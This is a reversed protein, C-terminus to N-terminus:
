LKAFFADVSRVVHSKSKVYEWVLRVCNVAFAFAVIWFAIEWYSVSSVQSAVHHVLTTIALFLVARVVQWIIVRLQMDLGRTWKNFEYNLDM